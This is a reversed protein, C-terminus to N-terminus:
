SEAPDESTWQEWYKCKRKDQNDINGDFPKMLYYEKKSWGVIKCKFLTYETDLIKDFELKTEVPVLHRCTACIYKFADAEM